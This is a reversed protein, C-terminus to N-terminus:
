QGEVEIDKELGSRGKLYFRVQGLCIFKVKLQPLFYILAIIVYNLTVPFIM